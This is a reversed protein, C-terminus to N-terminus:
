KKSAKKSEFYFDVFILCLMLLLIATTVIPKRFFEVADGGRPITLIVKGVIMDKDIPADTDPANNADGQTIYGEDVIDVIRHTVPTGGSRPIYTVIDGEKYKRKASVLVLDDISIETEMSGSDVVYSSFGLVVPNDKKTIARAAINLLNILLVLALLALLIYYAIKCIIKVKKM